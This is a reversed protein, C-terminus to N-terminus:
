PGGRQRQGAAQALAVLNLQMEIIKMRMLSTNYDISGIRAAIFELAEAVRVDPSQNTDAQFQPMQM